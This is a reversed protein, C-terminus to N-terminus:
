RGMEACREFANGIIVIVGILLVLVSLSLFSM